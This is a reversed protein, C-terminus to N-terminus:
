KTKSLTLARKPRIPTPENKRIITDIDISDNTQQPKDSTPAILKQSYKRQRALAPSTRRRMLSLSDVIAPREALPEINIWGSLHTATRTSDTILTIEQRGPKDLSINSTITEVAGDDYVTTINWQGYRAPTVLRSRLTYVDGPMWNPDTDFSFTIYNSPSRNTFIFFKSADWIDVSDGSVSMAAEGAVTASVQKLRKELIDITQKTVEQYVPMNKGYWILSTDFQESTVGHRELVANRLALQSESTNYETHQVSIVADAIRIDAMLAAMKDPKIVYSPVDSCAVLLAACILTAIKAAYTM